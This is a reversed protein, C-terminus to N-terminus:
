DLGYRGIMIDMKINNERRCRYRGLPRNGDIKILSDSCENRKEKMHAVHGAWRMGRSKMM